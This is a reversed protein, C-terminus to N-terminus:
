RCGDGLLEGLVSDLDEQQDEVFSEPAVRAVTELFRRWDNDCRALLAAFQGQGVRYTRYGALSANNIPARADLERELALLTRHKEILKSLPSANTAYVADLHAYARLVRAGDRERRTEEALYHRLAAREGAEELYVPTMRDAVFLALSENFTGQGDVYVTAHVSEHLVTNIFDGAVSAGRTLMTSLVPDRFWGLTSYASAGRVHVDLGTRALDDAFALADGRDFWGLYPFSGLLPFSWSEPEFALPACATVVWVAADRDLQAYTEYNASTALGHRSGWAKIAPVQELLEALAPPADGRALIREIPQARAMLDLQGWTAQTLYRTM